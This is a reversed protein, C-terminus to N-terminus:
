QSIADPEICCIEAEDEHVYLRECNNCMWGRRDVLPTGDEAKDMLFDPGDVDGIFPEADM